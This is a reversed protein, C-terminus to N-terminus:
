EHPQAQPSILFAMALASVTPLVATESNFALWAAAAFAVSVITAGLYAKSGLVPKLLLLLAFAAALVTAAAHAQMLQAGSELRLLEQATSWANANKPVAVFLLTYWVAVGCAAFLAYSLAALITFRPLNLKM